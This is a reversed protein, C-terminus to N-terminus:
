MIQPDKLALLWPDGLRSSLSSGNGGAGTETASTVFGARLSHGSFVKPDLGVAKAYHTVRLAVAHDDIGWTRVQGGRDM